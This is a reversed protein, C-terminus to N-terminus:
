NHILVVEGPAFWIANLFQFVRWGFRRRLGSFGIREFGQQYLVSLAAVNRMQTSAFVAEAGDRKLNYTAGNTLRTAIGRRRFAPHGAIWLICSYKKGGIQFDILKAFGVVMGEAKCVLVQGEESLSHFSFYRYIIPFSLDMVKKVQSLDNQAMQRIVVDTGL